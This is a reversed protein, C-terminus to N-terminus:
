YSERYQMLKQINGSEIVSFPVKTFFKKNAIVEINFTLDSFDEEDFGSFEQELINDIGKSINKFQEPSLIYTQINNGAVRAWNLDKLGYEIAKHQEASGYAIFFANKFQEKTKFDKKHNKWVYNYMFEAPDSTFLEESDTNPQIIGNNIFYEQIQQEYTSLNGALENYVEIEFYNLFQRTLYDIVYAEHGADGYELDAYQASGYQIWYEGGLLKSEVLKKKTINKWTETLQKLTPDFSKYLM